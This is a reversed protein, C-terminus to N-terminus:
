RLADGDLLVRMGPDLTTKFRSRDPEPEESRYERKLFSIHNKLKDGTLNQLLYISLGSCSHSQSM